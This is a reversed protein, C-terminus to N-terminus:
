RVPSASASGQLKERWAVAEEPKGRSEYLSVIRHCAQEVARRSEWPITAQRDILGRYGAVLLPESDSFKRRGALTAGLLSQINYRQWVDPANKEQARLAEYLLSEADAYRRQGLRVQSLSVLASVTDPHGEGLVRRRAQLVTTSLRDAQGYKGQDQCLQALDNMTTLTDPHESGLVRQQVEVVQTLLAEARAYKRQNRYLHSLNRMMTLTDPHEQGLVRRQIALAQTFLPEAQAYSGRDLYLRALNNMMLLTDPNEAGLRRRQLELGNKLLPEAQGYKGQRRYLVALNNMSMFTDPHEKGLVRSRGELVAIFLPEAQAYKGQYLYLRALNDTTILTDPHEEGLLRERVERVRTCLPEAQAYKGELEYLLALNNMSLLTDPHEGGVTRQRAYWVKVFAPEAQQYKGENMYVTALDNMTALTDPHEEGLVQRRLELARVFVPEAHAYDGQDQYLEALGNMTALTDPHKEGLARRQLDLAREIQQDAEPYLGLDRYTKGITQRISAEVLPQKDFKGTIRVAARDLATRVKLNPDPKTDPRTQVSASAQALLDNQLFDNIAKASASETTAIQEARRALVAEWTSAIIGAILVIFVATVGAVLAKQRRIFKRLQYLTSPRRALIPEDRLYRQIEEALGAASSYRQMKNKELAKAVIVEVDGRYTGNVSSLPAADAERITRVAEDLQRSIEYPRRGALLEFLIVGLAYVDSRADLKLPDALVQEPSMYALTGMLQGFNTQRTATVDPNTVCAIGFDLIKPQGDEDVLINGPKLDRHIIGRLHAHHVAECVKTMLELRQHLNFHHTDAHQTLPAGRILEMAFYPQPGFGTDATGAEYIQAIGPHRLRGLAESEQEFRRALKPSALGAQIVKLAVVRRPHEQEAEYVVGMGGEGLQRIIRYRGIMSPMAAQTKFAERSAFLRASGSVIRTEVNLFSSAQKEAALLSEVERRLELDERCLQEVRDAREEAPLELVAAVIQEIEQWDPQKM